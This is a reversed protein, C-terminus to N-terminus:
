LEAATSCGDTGDSTCHANLQSSLSDASQLWVTVLSDPGYPTLAIGEPSSLPLYTSISSCNIASNHQKLAHWCTYQNQSM